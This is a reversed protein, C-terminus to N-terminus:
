RAVSIESSTYGQLKKPDAYTVIIHVCKNLVLYNTKTNIKVTTTVESSYKSWFDSCFPLQFETHVVNPFPFSIYTANTAVKSYFNVGSCM